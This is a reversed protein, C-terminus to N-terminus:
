GVHDGCEGGSGVSDERGGLRAVDGQTCVARRPPYFRLPLPAAGLRRPEQGPPLPLHHLRPPPAVVDGMLMNFTEDALAADDVSVQLLTRMEPNMTTEWLQEANMEGLGKYRQISVGQREAQRELAGALENWALGEAVRNDRRTIAFTHGNM